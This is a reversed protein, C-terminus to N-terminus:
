NSCPLPEAGQLCEWVQVTDSAGAKEALSSMRSRNQQAARAYGAATPSRLAFLMVLLLSAAPLLRM